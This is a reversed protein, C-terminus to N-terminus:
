QLNIRVGLSDSNAHLEAAIPTVGVPVDFVIDGTINNGPNIDDNFPNGLYYRAAYGTASSDYDYRQGQGNFVYQDYANVSNASNGVNTVTINLRCYQGQANASYNVFSYTFAIEKEDCKLSNVTFDFGADSFTQGIQGQETPTTTNQSHTQQTGQKSNTTASKTSGGTAIVIIGVVVLIWVWFLLFSVLFKIIAHPRKFFKAWLVVGLPEILILTLVLFWTKKYFHKSSSSRLKPEKSESM